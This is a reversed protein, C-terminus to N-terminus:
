AGLDHGRHRRAFRLGLHSPHEPDTERGDFAVEVLLLLRARQHGFPMRASGGADRWRLVGHEPRLEFSM